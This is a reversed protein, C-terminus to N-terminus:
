LWPTALRCAYSLAKTALPLRHFANPTQLLSRKADAKFERTLQDSLARDHIVLSCEFNSRLAKEDMNASGFLIKGQDNWAVKAHIPNDMYRYARAGSKALDHGHLYNAWNIPRVPTRNPFLVNVAIGNRAQSCLADLIERDPLFYWKRIYIEREADLVLDLLTRRIDCRQGPVTLRVQAQGAFLRSLHLEPAPHGKGNRSLHRVYDYVQHFTHNL